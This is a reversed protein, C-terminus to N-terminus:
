GLVQSLRGCSLDLALELLGGAVKDLAPAPGTEPQQAAVMLM